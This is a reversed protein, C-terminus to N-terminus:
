AIQFVVIAGNKGEIDRKKFTFRELPEPSVGSEKLFSQLEEGGHPGPLPIIIKSELQKALKHADRANLGEERDLYVFLVDM